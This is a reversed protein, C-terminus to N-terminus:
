WNYGAGRNNGGNDSTWLFITNAWMGKHQLAHQITQISEDVTNVMGCFTRRDMDAIHDCLEVNPPPAELPTHPANYMIHFYQPVSSAPDYKEITELVKRTWLTSSYTGTENFQPERQNTLDLANGNLHNWHDVAGAWFSFFSDFGRGEPTVDWTPFGLHWQSLM